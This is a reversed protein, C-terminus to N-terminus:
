IVGIDEIQFQVIERDQWKNLKVTGLVSIEKGKASLIADGLDTDLVKWAVADLSKGYVGMASEVLRLKLHNAGIQKLNFIKCKEIVFRPEKNDQGFPALMNINDLFEISFASISTNYHYEKINDGRAQEVNNVLQTNLYEKLALVHLFM